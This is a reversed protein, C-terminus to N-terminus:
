KATVTAVGADSQEQQASAMTPVLLASLAAGKMVTRRDMGTNM